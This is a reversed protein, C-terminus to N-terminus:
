LLAIERGAFASRLVADPAVEWRCRETAETVPGGGAGYAWCTPREDGGCPPEPPGAPGDHAHHVVSQDGVHTSAAAFILPLLLNVAAGEGEKVWCPRHVPRQTVRPQRQFLPLVRSCLTSGAAGPNPRGGTRGLSDRLGVGPCCLRNELLLDRRVARSDGDRVLVYGSELITHNIVQRSQM